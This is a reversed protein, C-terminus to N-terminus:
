GFGYSARSGLISYTNAGIKITTFTYVDLQQNTLSSSFTPRSNGSWRTSNAQYVGDIALNATYQVGGGQTIIFATTLSQGNGMLSDLPTQPGVRLDFTVNGSTNGTLYYVSSDGVFISLNGSVSGPILHANELLRSLPRLKESPLSGEAIAAGNVTNRPLNLNVGITITNSAPNFSINRNVYEVDARGSLGPQLNFYFEKNENVVQLIPLTTVSLM